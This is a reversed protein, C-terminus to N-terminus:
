KDGDPAPREILAEAERQFARAEGDESWNIPKPNTMLERLRQLHARAQEKQGLQYNAMALFAIDAPHSVHLQGAQIKDSETLTELAAQYQGARYQAVGLTNLLEGAGPALRSAEQAQLLAHRYATEAAGPKSVVRWSADNLRVPDQRYREARARAEERLSPSLDHSSRLQDLVPGKIVLQDFMSHVLRFAERQVLLEPTAVAADLVLVKSNRCGLALRRGDPSFALSHLADLRPDPPGESGPPRGTRNQYSFLEQGTATDWVKAAGECSASALRRGDKSFDVQYIGYLHGRLSHVEVGTKLDFVKIEGGGAYPNTAAALRSGDAHFALSDIPALRPGVFGTLSGAEKGTTPDWFRITQDWGSSALREGDPSFAVRTAERSHGTFTNLLRGTAVDWVKVTKDWSSSALLRGDPSFAVGTVARTHGHFDRLLKGTTADWTRLLGDAGGSALMRSDPGYAVASVGGLVHRQDPADAWTRVARHARILFVEQGTGAEHVRLTGEAGGTALHRGDPSYAVAFVEGGHGPFDLVELDFTTTWVKVTRDESATAIRAGDASYALANIPAAHQRLAFLERGTAPDCVRVTTAPSLLALQRGDRGWAAPVQQTGSGQVALAAKGVDLHWVALAGNASTLNLRKGDATFALQVIRSKVGALSHIEKGSSSEWVKVTGDTAASAVHRGDSGFAVATVAKGHGQFSFVEKGNEDRLSVQPDGAAALIQSDPSFAVSGPGATQKVVSFLEKGTGAEWVRVTGDPSVSALRRGDPSFALGTVGGTLGPLTRLELGTALEWVKVTGDRSGSALHLRDPSFAVATVTDTHGSLTLPSSDLLRRFYHWEFGRLDPDDGKPVQLDLLQQVRSLARDRWAIQLLSARADYLHRRAAEGGREAADREKEVDKRASNAQLWLATLSPLSVALVLALTTLLGAVAPRRKAWRWARELAGAPRAQIPESKLFRRLDAALEGATPYRRNPEKAMAKLCITELDRPVRDNFSHPARPEDHLVQHLLMRQNGRFPLEGTLLQYLVVGLSYVDSRGDVAHSEGRAQEPSMYTPTGLVQGEVTMTIEGVDRKAVGFDMVHPAGDASRMINSPKVDRHVVGHRHAYDLADAVAAILQASERPAPRRATLEDALTVGDVFDSVLYPLGNQQGVEHVPVISPHRLQAVSRAERLFRDLEQGQDLNGARPVKVAVVRDLEPDRAKYVTGFAGQGVRELLEFKGIFTHRPLYSITSGCDLLFSSGCAPCVIEEQPAQALEITTQCHPCLLQM